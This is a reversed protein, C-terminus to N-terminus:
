SPRNCYAYDVAGSIASTRQGHNDRLDVSFGARQLRGILAAEDGYDRHVELVIQDVRHLWSLDENGSLLAFEGGEIDVKLLSVQDIRYRAMLEPVSVEAPRETAGHSAAAWRRDDAILGVSTGSAVVGSAVGIEVHVRNAVDNHQALARILPEFGQQADVAIVQAGSTAAWASFLGRNAGLDIVWGSTPMTLGTRFYVNRCYMERAGPTYDPPLSVVADGVIKFRGGTRAWVRDAPALSRSKACEPLHVALAAAWRAATRPQASRCVSGIDTVARKALTAHM